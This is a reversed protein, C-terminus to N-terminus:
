GYQDFREEGSYLLTAGALSESFANLFAPLVLWDNERTLTLQADPWWPEPQNPAALDRTFLFWANYDM